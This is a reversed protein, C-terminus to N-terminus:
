SETTDWLAELEEPTADLVARQFAPPDFPSVIPKEGRLECVLYYLERQDMKLATKEINEPVEEWHGCECIGDFWPFQCQICWDNNRAHLVHDRIIQNVVAEEQSSEEGSSCGRGSDFEGVL